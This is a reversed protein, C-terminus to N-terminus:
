TSPLEGEKVVGPAAVIWWKDCFNAIADAKAPDKLERLWDSRSAKIEFNHIELGRSPWMSMAIGDASRRSNYGAADRVEEMLVFEPLTYKKRLTERIQHTNM